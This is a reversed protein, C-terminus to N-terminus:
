RFVLDTRLVYKVGKQVADAEHDLCQDGHVHFLIKGEEVESIVEQRRGYHFRTAGGVCTSLYILVTMQTTGRDTKENGDVHKGFSMGREYKYVRLNGNAAIPRQQPVLAEFLSMFCAMRDFLADAMTWDQRQWRYCERQAMSRSAPHNTYIMRNPSECEVYHIWAQCEQQSLFSPATYVAGPVITQLSQQYQVSNSRLLLSHPLLCSSSLVSKSEGQVQQKRTTTKTATTTKTSVTKTTTTAVVAVAAVAVAARNSPKKAM